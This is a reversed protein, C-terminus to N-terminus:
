NIICIKRYINENKCRAVIFYVGPTILNPLQFFSVESQSTGDKRWIVRGCIDFLVVSYHDGINTILNFSLNSTHLPNISEIGLQVTSFVTNNSPSTITNQVNIGNQEDSFFDAVTLYDFHYDFDTVFYEDMFGPTINNSYDIPTFTVWTSDDSPWEFGAFPQCHSIGNDYNITQMNGTEASICTVHGAVRWVGPEIYTWDNWWIFLYNGDTYTCLACDIASHSSQRTDVTKSTYAFPLEFLISNWRNATQQDPYIIYVDNYGTVTSHVWVGTNYSCWGQRKDWQTEYLGTCKPTRYKYWESGWFDEMNILALDIASNYSEWFRIYGIMVSSRKCYTATNWSFGMKGPEYGYQPPTLISKESPISIPDSDLEFSFSSQDNAEIHCVLKGLYGRPVPTSSVYYRYYEGCDESRPIEFDVPYHFDNCLWLTHQDGETSGTVWITDNIVPESYCVTISLCYTSDTGSDNGSYTREQLISDACVTLTDPTDFYGSFCMGTPNSVSINKVHPVFNNLVVGTTPSAPDIVNEKPLLIEGFDDHNGHPNASVNVAYIGDPFAAHENVFARPYGSWNGDPYRMRTDWCGRNFEESDWDHISGISTNTWINDYGVGGYDCGSNTLIYANHFKWPEVQGSLDIDLFLQNYEHTNGWPIISDNSVLTRNGYLTNVWTSDYPHQRLIKFSISRCGSNPALYHWYINASYPSVIIDIYDSIEDQLKKLKLILGGPLFQMTDLIDNMDFIIGRQSHTLLDEFHYVPRWAISDYIVPAILYDFPNVVGVFGPSPPGQTLEEIWSLHIHRWFGTTDYTLCLEQKPIFISDAFRFPWEYPPIDLHGLGWGSDADVTNGICLEWGGGGQYVGRFYTTDIGPSLVLATGPSPDEFDLGPHPGEAPVCWDGYGILVHEPFPNSPFAINYINWAPNWIDDSFGTNILILLFMLIKLLFM